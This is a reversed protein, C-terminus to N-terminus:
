VKSANWVPRHQTTEEQKDMAINRASITMANNIPLIFEEIQLKIKM